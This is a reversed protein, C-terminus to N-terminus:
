YLPVGARRSKVVARDRHPRNCSRPRPSACRDGFSLPSRRRVLHWRRLRNAGNLFAKMFAVAAPIIGLKHPNIVGGPLLLADFKTALSIRAEARCAAQPGLGHLELRAGRGRKKPSVVRTDAGAQDLAKRPETLEVEEFGDTVLIDGAVKV